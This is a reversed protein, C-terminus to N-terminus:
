QLIAALFSLWLQPLHRVAQLPFIVMHGAQAQKALKTRVFTTENTASFHAGYLIERTLEQETM